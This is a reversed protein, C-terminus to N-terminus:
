KDNPCRVELNYEKAYKIYECPCKGKPCEKMKLKGDIKIIKGTKYNLTNEIFCIRHEPTAGLKNLAVIEQISCYGYTEKWHLYGKYKTALDEMGRERYVRALISTGAVTASTQDGKIVARQPMDINPVKYTGDVIIYDPKVKLNIIAQRMANLHLRRFSGVQKNAKKYADNIEKASVYVVSYDICSAKILPELGRKKKKTLKKSDDVGDIYPKSLDLILAGVTFGGAFAGVGSEDVGCIYKYGKSQLEKEIRLKPYNM